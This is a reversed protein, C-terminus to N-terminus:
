CQLNSLLNSLKYVMKLTLGKTVHSSIFFVLVNKEYFIPVLTIIPFINAEGWGGAGLINKLNEPIKPASPCAKKFNWDYLLEIIAKSSGNTVNRFSHSAKRPIIFLIIPIHVKLM